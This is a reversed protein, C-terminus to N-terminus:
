ALDILDIPLRALALGYEAVLPVGDGVDPERLVSTGVQGPDLHGSLNATDHRAPDLNEAARVEFAPILHRDIVAGARLPRNERPGIIEPEGGIVPHDEFQLLVSGGVTSKHVLSAGYTPQM